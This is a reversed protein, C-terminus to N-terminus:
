IDERISSKGERLTKPFRPIGDGTLGFYQVSLMKGIYEDGQHYLENREQRTGKSPVNFTKDEKTKCIWVVVNDNKGLVDKECTYDVIEFEDDDFNKYKLLNYSRYKQLYMGEYNRIMSGEYGESIFQSHYSEIDKKDNCLFTPVLKIFDTYETIMSLMKNRNHYDDDIIVDYVHYEMQDLVKEDDKSLKKKRLVGYDEFNLKNHAYLEGDLIVNIRGLEQHLKTNELIAYEKGNRSYMKKNTPNYVMRYGDLKPQIFCPFEVKKSHKNYDQALMPSPINHIVKVVYNVDKEEKVKSSYGDITNKKKWRSEADLLAQQFHTTENKKGINKGKTIELEYQTKKGDTYGYSYVIKSYNTYKDVRITWEKTKGNKDTAFLPEFSKSELIKSAM